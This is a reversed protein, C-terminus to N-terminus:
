WVPNEASQCNIWTIKVFKQHAKYFIRSKTTALGSSAFNDMVNHHLSTATPRISIQIQRTPDLFVSRRYNQRSGAHQSGTAAITFLLIVAPNFPKQSNAPVNMISNILTTVVFMMCNCTAVDRIFAFADNDPRKSADISSWCFHAYIDSVRIKM